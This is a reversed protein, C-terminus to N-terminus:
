WWGRQKWGANFPRRRTQISQRGKTNLARIRDLALLADINLANAREPNEGIFEACLGATRFALFSRANNLNITATSTTVMTFLSGIYEILVQRASTAGGSIFNINQNQYTWWQLENTPVVDQPLWDMRTMESYVDSTGSLREYLKQIEVLDSPLSALAIQSTGAAVTIASALTNTTEANDQEFIEQLEDLATNLYPIQVAYTYVSLAQDNLLASSRDMVSAATISM